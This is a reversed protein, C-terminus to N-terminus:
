DRRLHEDSLKLSTGAAKYGPALLEDASKGQYRPLKMQRQIGELTVRPAKTSVINAIWAPILGGVDIQTEFEIRTWRGPLPTLRFQNRLSRMRVHADNEPLGSMDRSEVLVMGSPQQSVQRRVLVDRDSAPWIGKFQLYIHDAPFGAPNEAHKANFIWHQLGPTDSLLSLVENAAYPVETMGRFAKVQAGPVSRAWTQITQRGSGFEGTSEWDDARSLTPSLVLALMLGAAVRQLLTAMSFGYLM